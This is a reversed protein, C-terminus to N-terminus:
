CHIPDCPFRVRSKMRPRGSGWEAVFATPIGVVGARIQFGEDRLASQLLASTETEQYGVEALSWIKLALQSFEDSRQDLIEAAQVKEASPEQGSVDVPNLSIILFVTTILLPFASRFM